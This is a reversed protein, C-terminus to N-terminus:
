GRKILDLLIYLDKFPRTIKQNQGDWNLAENGM